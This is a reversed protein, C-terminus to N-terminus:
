LALHSTLPSRIYAHTQRLFVIRHPMFPLQSPRLSVAWSVCGSVDVAVDRNTAWCQELALTTM